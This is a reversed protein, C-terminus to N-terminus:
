HPDLARARASEEQSEGDCRALLSPCSATDQRADLRISRVTGGSLRLVAALMCFRRAGRSGGIMGLGTLTHADAVCKPNSHGPVVLWGPQM